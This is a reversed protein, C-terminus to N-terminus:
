HFLGSFRIGKSPTVRKYELYTYASPTVIVQHGNKLAKVAQASKRWNMVVCDASVGGEFYKMGDLWHKAKPM